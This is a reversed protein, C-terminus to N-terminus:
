SYLFYITSGRNIECAAKTFPAETIDKKPEFYNMIM